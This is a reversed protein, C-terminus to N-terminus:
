HSYVGHRRLINITYVNATRCLSQSILRTSLSSTVIVTYATVTLLLQLTQTCLPLTVAPTCRSPRAIVDCAAVTATNTTVTVTHCSSLTAVHCHSLTVNHSHSLAVTHCNSLIVTHCHSWSQSYRPPAAPHGRGHACRSHSKSHTCWPLIVYHSRFLVCDGHRKCPM